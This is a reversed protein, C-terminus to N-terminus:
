PLDKRVAPYGTPEPCTLEDLHLAVELEAPCPHLTRGLREEIARLRSEVTSRAVSLVTATSSINRGAAFYAHLTERLVSGGDRSGELPSLYIDLLARALAADKLATALLAVDAYRTCGQPRRLAVVLAAQAQEHTLRWGAFGRGPEGVALSVDRTGAARFFREVEVGSVRRQGGAFWAWVTREGFPVSLLRCGLAARLEGLVQAADEGTAIAGLHWGELEYGLEAAGDLSAGGALLRRVLEVRRQEPAGGAREIDAFVVDVATAVVTRLGAVHEADSGGVTDPVVERMRMFIAEEIEGRRERLGEVVVGVGSAM